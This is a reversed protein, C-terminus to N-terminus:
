FSIKFVEEIRVANNTFLYEIAGKNHFVVGLETLYGRMFEKMGATNTYYHFQISEDTVASVKFEPPTLEPFILMIRNHYNPLNVLYDKLTAGREAMIGPFQEQMVKIIYRGFNYLVEALPTRTQSALRDAVYYTADDNYPQEMLEANFAIPSDAKIADWVQEDHNDLVFQKLAKYVIGYM